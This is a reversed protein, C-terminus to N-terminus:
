WVDKHSITPKNPKDRFNAINALAIDERTEIANLILNKAMAAVPINQNKALKYIIEALKPELTINIRPNQTPMNIQKFFYFMLHFVM